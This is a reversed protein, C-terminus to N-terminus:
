GALKKVFGPLEALRGSDDHPWADPVGRDQIERSLALSAADSPGADTTLFTRMGLRGAAMDNVPDNGVMMCQQPDVGLHSCIDEYYSLRPKCSTTNEIDTIWDFRIAELGAWALRKEQVLRPWVPNSAVATKVGMSQIELVIDSGNEVPQVLSRFTDFESEYFHSFRNRIESVHVDLGEMFARMFVDLNLDEGDNLILAQTSSIIRSRFRDIPIIDTFHRALRPMYASFFRTEDFLIFTNDLDFLVARIRTGNPPFDRLPSNGPSDTRYPTQLPTM